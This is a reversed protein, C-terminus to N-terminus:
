NEAQGYCFFIMAKLEILKGLFVFVGMLGAGDRVHVHVRGRLLFSFM